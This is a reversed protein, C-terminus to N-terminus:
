QAKIKRQAVIYNHSDICSIILEESPQKVIFTNGDIEVDAGEIKWSFDGETNTLRLFYYQGVSLNGGRFGGIDIKSSAYNPLMEINMPNEFITDHVVNIISDPTHSIYLSHITITIILATNLLTAVMTISMKSISLWEAMCRVKHRLKLIRQQEDYHTSFGGSPTPSLPQKSQVLQQYQQKLKENEEFLSKRDQKEQKLERDLQSYEQQLKTSQNQMSQFQQQFEKTVESKITVVQKDLRDIQEQLQKKRANLLENEQQEHEAKSQWLNREKELEARQSEILSIQQRLEIPLKDKIPVSPSIFIRNTECESLFQPSDIDWTSYAKIKSQTTDSKKELPILGDAIYKDINQKVITTIQNLITEKEKFQSVIFQEHDNEKKVLNSICLQNYTGELLSYLRSVQTCLNQEFCITIAFYANPERPVSEYVNKRHIYSYYSNGQWVDVQMAAEVDEGIRSDLFPKIYFKDESASAPSWIDQGQPRGHIYIRVM